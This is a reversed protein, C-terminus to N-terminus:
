VHRRSYVNVSLYGEAANLDNIVGCEDSEILATHERRIVDLHNYATVLKLFSRTEATSYFNAPLGQPKSAM